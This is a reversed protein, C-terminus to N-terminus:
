TPTMQTWAFMGGCGGTAPDSDNARPADIADPLSTADFVTWCYYLVDDAYAWDFRYFTGTADADEGAVWMQANDFDLITTTTIGFGSDYVWADMSIDHSGDFNDDYTGIIELASGGSSSSGTTQGATGGTSPDDGTTSGSGTSPDDDTTTGAPDDTTVSPATSSSTPTDGTTTGDGDSNGDDANSPCGCLVIALSLITRQM